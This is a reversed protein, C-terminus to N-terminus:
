DRTSFAPASSQATSASSRSRTRIRVIVFLVLACLLVALAAITLLPARQYAVAIAAFGVFGITSYILAWAAGGLALAPLYRILAMRTAGAAANVVTQFGITLFSLAVLPAGWRHLQEEVRRYKASRLLTDIRRFRAAGRRAARGLAYTAGARCLVILYLLAWVAILPLQWSQPHM